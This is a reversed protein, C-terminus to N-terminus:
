VELPSKMRFKARLTETVGARAEVNTLLPNVTFASFSAPERALKLSASYVVLPSFINALSATYPPLPLIKLGGKVHRHSPAILGGCELVGVSMM